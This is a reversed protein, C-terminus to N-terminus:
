YTLAQFAHLEIIGIAPPPPLPVGRFHDNDESFLRFRPRGPAGYDNGPGGVPSPPPDYRTDNAGDPAEIIRAMGLGAPVVESYFLYFGLRSNITGGFM